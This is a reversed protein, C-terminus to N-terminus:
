KKPAKQGTKQGTKTKNGARPPKAKVEKQVLSRLYRVEKKLEKVQDKCAVNEKVLSELQVQDGMTIPRSGKQFYSEPQEEMTPPEGLFVPQMANSFIKPNVQYNDILFKMLKHRHLKPVSRKGDLVQYLTRIPIGLYKEVQAVNKCFGIKQLHHLTKIFAKDFSDQNTTAM